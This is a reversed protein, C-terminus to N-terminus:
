ILSIQNLNILSSLIGSIALYFQWYIQLDRVLWQQVYNPRIHLCIHLCYSLASPCIREPSQRNQRAYSSRVISTKFYGHKFQGSISKWPWNMVSPSPPATLFSSGQCLMQQSQSQTQHQEALREQERQLIPVDRHHVRLDRVFHAKEASETLDGDRDTRQVLLSTESTKPLSVEPHERDLLPSAENRNYHGDYWVFQTKISQLHYVIQVIARVPNIIDRLPGPKLLTPVRTVNPEPDRSIVGDRSVRYRDLTALTARQWTIQASVHGRRARDQEQTGRIAHQVPSKLCFGRCQWNSGLVKQSAVGSCSILIRAQSAFLAHHPFM